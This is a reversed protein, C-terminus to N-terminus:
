REGIAGDPLMWTGDHCIVLRKPLHSKECDVCVNETRDELNVNSFDKTPIGSEPEGSVNVKPPTQSAPDETQTAINLVPDSQAM